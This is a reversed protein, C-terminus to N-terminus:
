YDTPKRFLKAILQPALLDISETMENSLKEGDNNLWEDISMSPSNTLAYDYANVYKQSYRAVKLSQFAQKFNTRLNPEQEKELQQLETYVSDLLMVNAPDVQFCSLRSIMSPQKGDFFLNFSILLTQDAPGIVVKGFDDAGVVITECYTNNQVTQKIVNLLCFQISDAESIRIVNEEFTKTHDVVTVNNNLHSVAGSVGGIAFGTSFKNMMSMWDAEVIPFVALSVPM